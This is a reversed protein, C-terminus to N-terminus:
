VVILLLSTWSIQTLKLIKEGILTVLILYERAKAHHPVWLSVAVPLMASPKVLRLNISQRLTALPDYRLPNLSLVQYCRPQRVVDLLISYLCFLSTFLYILSEGSDGLPERPADGILRKMVARLAEPSRLIIIARAYTKADTLIKKYEGHEGTWSKSPSTRELAIIERADGYDIPDQPCIPSERQIGITGPSHEMFRVIKNIKETYQSTFVPLLTAALNDIKIENLNADHDDWRAPFDLSQLVRHFQAILSDVDKQSLQRGRM